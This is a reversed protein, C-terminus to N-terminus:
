APPVDGLPPPAVAPGQAAAIFGGKAGAYENVDTFLPALRRKLREYDRRLGPDARLRDRFALHRREWESGSECVHLNVLRRGSADALWFFRHAPEPDPRRFYGLRELPGQYAVQPEFSAVALQIDVIDKAGLGPVSTSGIHEIRQAVPGM